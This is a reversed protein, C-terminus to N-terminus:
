GSEPLVRADEDESQISVWGTTFRVAVNGATAPNGDTGIYHLCLVDYTRDEAFTFAM